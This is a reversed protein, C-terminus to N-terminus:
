DGGRRSFPEKDRFTQLVPLPGSGTLKPPHSWYETSIMKDVGVTATIFPEMKLVVAYNDNRLSAGDVNVSCRNASGQFDAAAPKM